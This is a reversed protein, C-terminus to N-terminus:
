TGAPEPDSLPRSPTRTRRHVVPDRRGAPWAPVAASEADEGPQSLCAVFMEALRPDFQTGAGKLIQSLAVDRALAKRYPRNSTMADYSDCLSIIRAEIPIDGAALGTPYGQGDWREHHAAIWPVIEKLSSAALIKAGLAPHEHVRVWEDDDLRGPKRLIADPVGVKGVDHLLAATEMQRTRVDDFGLYRCFGVVYRAVSQSHFETYPDRADVMSALVQVLGLRSQREVLHVREEADLAEVVEADYAIAQNGGSLKAWYLAGEAKRILDEAEVSMAPYTAVGASITMEIDPRRKLEWRVRECLDVAQESTASPLIVAFEDGGVRCVTDTERLTQRLGEDGTPLGLRQNVENLGDLDIAVVSFQEELRGARKIELAVREHFFRHNFLGTLPDTLSDLALRSNDVTLAVGRAAAFVSVAAISAFVLWFEVPVHASAAWLTAAPLYAAVVVYVFADWVTISPTRPRTAETDVANEDHAAYALSCLCLLFYGTMWSLDVAQSWSTGLHYLMHASAVNLILNGGLFFLLAGAALSKFVHPRRRRMGFFVLLVASLCWVDVLPYGLRTILASASVASQPARIVLEVCLASSVTILIFADLLHLPRTFSERQAPEAMSWFMLGIVVYGVINTISYFTGGPIASASIFARAFQFQADGLLFLASALALLILPRRKSSLSRRLGLLPGVVALAPAILYLLAQFRFLGHVGALIFCACLVAFGAWLLYRPAVRHTADAGAPAVNLTSLEHPKASVPAQKTNM